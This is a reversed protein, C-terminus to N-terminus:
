SAAAAGEATAAAVDAASQFRDAPDKRLLRVIVAEFWAPLDSRLRHPPEPETQCVALALAAMSKAAFAPRGTALEYLVSGLSFLDSRGDVPRDLMQEPSMYKPTGIPGGHHSAVASGLCKALGFDTVKVRGTARDLLLNAPKVDRHVINKRHAAELGAAVHRAVRVVKAVPLPRGRDLRDQLSKGDVYEMALYAVEGDGVRYIAVVNQHRVAAVSRAEVEFRRRHAASATWTPLMVKIALPRDLRRDYAKFVAGMAGQGLLALLEYEDLRCGGPPLGAVFEPRFPPLVPDTPRLLVPASLNTAELGGSPPVGRLNAEVALTALQECGASLVAAM